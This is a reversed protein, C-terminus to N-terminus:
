KLWFSCKPANFKLDSARLGGFIIILREIHNRFCYKKLVIIDNIYIIVNEIDSLLEDVKAQFIDGSTCMGM